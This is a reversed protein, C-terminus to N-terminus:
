DIAKPPIMGGPFSRPPEEQGSHRYLIDRPEGRLYASILRYAVEYREHLSKLKVTHADFPNELVGSELDEKFTQEFQKMTEDGSKLSHYIFHINDREIPSLNKAIAPYHNDYIVTLPPISKGPLYNGSILAEIMQRIIDQKPPIGFRNAELEDILAAILREAQRKERFVRSWEGLAFGSAVGLLSGVVAVITLLLEM